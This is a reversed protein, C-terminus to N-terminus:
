SAAAKRRQPPPPPAGNMGWIYLATSYEREVHLEMIVANVQASLSSLTERDSVRDEQLQDVLDNLNKYTSNRATFLATLLTGLGGGGLLAVIFPLWEAPLIM